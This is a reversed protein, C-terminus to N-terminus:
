SISGVPMAIYTATVKVENGIALAQDVHHQGLVPDVM